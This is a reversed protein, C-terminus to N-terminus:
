ASLEAMYSRNNYNLCVDLDLNMSRLKAVITFITQLNNCIM